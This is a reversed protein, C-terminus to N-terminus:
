SASVKVRSRKSSHLWGLLPAAFLWFAAPLPVATLYGYQIVGPQAPGTPAGNVSLNVPNSALSATDSLILIRGGGSYSGGFDASLNTNAGVFSITPAAVLLGGGSGGGALIATGGGGAGGEASISGGTVTIASLSYLEIAGGGGGGSASGFLNAGSAGGGSGGQLQQTLDGYSAGGIAGFGNGGSGGFGGGQGFAPLGGQALGGGLGQGSGWAANGGAGGGAGGAGGTSGADQGNANLNGSITITGTSLLALPDPGAAHVVVGAGINISSFDFVAINNASVTGTFLVNGHSDTLTPANGNSGTDIVYNGASSLSLAGESAYGNPDLLPYAQATSLSLCSLALCSLAALELHRPLSRIQM